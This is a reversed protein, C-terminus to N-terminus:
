RLHMALGVANRIYYESDLMVGRADSSRHLGGNM